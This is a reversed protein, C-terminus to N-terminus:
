HFWLRKLPSLNQNELEATHSMLMTSIVRLRTGLGSESPLARLLCLHPCGASATSVPTRAGGRIPDHDNGPSVSGRAPSSGVAWTYRPDANEPSAGQHGCPAQTCSGEAGLVVSRGREGWHMGVLHGPPQTVWAAKDGATQEPGVLPLSGELDSPPLLSAPTNTGRTRGAPVTIRDRHRLLIRGEQGEPRASVM